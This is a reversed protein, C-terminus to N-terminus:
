LKTPLVFVFLSKCYFMTIKIISYYVFNMQFIHCPMKKLDDPADFCKM